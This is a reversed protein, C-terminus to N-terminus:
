LPYGTKTCSACSMPYAVCGFYQGLLFSTIAFDCGGDEVSKFAEIREQFTYYM